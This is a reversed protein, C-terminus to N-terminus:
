GKESFVAKFLIEIQTNVKVQIDMESIFSNTLEQAASLLKDNATDSIVVLALIENTYDDVTPDSETWKNELATTYLSVPSGLPYGDRILQRIFTKDVKDFFTRARLKIHSVDKIEQIIDTEPTDLIKQVREILDVSVNDLYELTVTWPEGHISEILEALAEESSDTSNIISLIGEKDEWTELVTLTTLIALLVSLPIDKEKLNVGMSKIIIVFNDHVISRIDGIIDVKNKNDQMALCEDIPFTHDEYGINNLLDIATMIEATPSEGVNELLMSELDNFM